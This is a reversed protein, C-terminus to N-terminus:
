RMRSKWLTGGGFIDNLIAILLAAGAIIIISGCVGFATMLFWIFVFIFIVLLILGIIFLKFSNKRYWAIAREIERVMNESLHHDRKNGEDSSEIIILYMLYMDGICFILPPLLSSIYSLIFFVLVLIWVFEPLILFKKQNIVDETSKTWWFNQIHINARIFILLLGISWVVVSLWVMMNTELSM